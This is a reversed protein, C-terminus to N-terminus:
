WSKPHFGVMKKVDGENLCGPQGSDAAVDEPSMYDPMNKVKRRNTREMSTEVNLHPCEGHNGWIPTEM